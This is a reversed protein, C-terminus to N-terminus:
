KCFGVSVREFQNWGRKNNAPPWKIQQQVVRGLKRAAPMQPPQASHPAEQGQEEQSEGPRPGTCQVQSERELYKMQAKHIKLGCPNKCVKGCICHPNSTRDNAHTVLRSDTRNPIENGRGRPIGQPYSESPDNTAQQPKERKPSVLQLISSCM